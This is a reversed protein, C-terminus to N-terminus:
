RADSRGRCSRFTESLAVSEIMTALGDGRERTRRAIRRVAPRDFPELGRGTAYTLIKGALNEMFLDARDLLTDRLGEPGVFPARGPLSGTADIPRGAEADRWRGIADFNELALGLPDMRTHCSACTADAVHAALQERLTAGEPVDRAQELPPIDAPPPPPPLGLLQDLVFLGRRVPSTRTPNSTITLVAATTMIGARHSESGFTVPRFHDGEVGAVGYHAALRQDLFSERGALLELASRNQRVARAFLLTVEQEMARRLPADFEPFRSTDVAAEGLKRLQLWQGAFHGVFADCRPDAIMRRVQAALPDDRVLTGDRAAGLLEDDPMSSWLFYSLRSALEYGNLRYVSSPDDPSPNAAVRFLFNPSVLAAVVARRVGQEFDLGEARAGDYVRGLAGVEDATAPRRYARGAFRGIIEGARAHEDESPPVGGFVRRWGEPRVSTAEDLPGAITISEITVNRDAVGPVYYDNTFAAAVRHEGADLRVQHEFVQQEARSGTVELRAVETGGIRVQVQASEDGAHAEWARVRVVYEGTIPARVVGVAAGNSFLGAGGRETARGSKEEVALRVPRPVDGFSVIPGLGIEVAQEAAALYAEVALPSTSLVDAINDFGYGTDDPPLGAAVDPAGPPLDLLDRLTNRYENRNLRHLTFWGPDIDADAPVYRAVADLWQTVILRQHESPQPKGEPPMQVGSVMERMLAVDEPRLLADGLSALNDLRMDGKVKEGAHCGFCFQALIPAVDERLRSDLEEGLQDAQQAFAPRM